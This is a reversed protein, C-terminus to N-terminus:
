LDFKDKSKDKIERKKNIIIEFDVGSCIANHEIIETYYEFMGTVSEDIKEYCKYFSEPM